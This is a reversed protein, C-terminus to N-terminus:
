PLLRVKRGKLRAEAEIWAGKAAYSSSMFEDKLASTFLVMEKEKGYKEPVAVTMCYFDRATKNLKEADNSQMLGFAKKAYNPGNCTSLYRAAANRYEWYAAARKSEDWTEVKDLGLERIVQLIERAGIAKILYMPRLYGPLIVINWIFNDVLRGNKKPDIYRLEILEKRFDNAGDDDQEQIAEEYLAKRRDPDLEEYFARWSDAIQYM